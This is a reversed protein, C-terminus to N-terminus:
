KIKKQYLNYSYQEIEGDGVKTFGHNSYYDNLKLNNKVCDLRLYKINNKLALANIFNLIEEGVGNYGVKTIFHHLYYAEENDKWLEDNNKILFLGILENKNKVVYLKHLKMTKLFYDMNYLEKYYWDGWQEINNKELWDCRLKILKLINKIDEELALKICIRNM